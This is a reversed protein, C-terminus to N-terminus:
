NQPRLQLQFLEAWVGWEEQGALSRCRHLNILDTETGRVALPRGRLHHRLQPMRERQLELLQSARVLSKRSRSLKRYGRGREETGVALRRRRYINLLLKGFCVICSVHEQNDQSGVKKAEGGHHLPTSLTPDESIENEAAMSSSDSRTANGEDLKPSESETKPNPRARKRAAM